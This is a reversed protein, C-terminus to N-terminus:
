YPSFDGGDFLNGVPVRLHTEQGIDTIRRSDEDSLDFNVAAFYEQMREVKKTTNLVIFQQDLQWRILITSKNVGYKASLEELTGELHKQGLWTIPALGMWSQIAIGQSQLWKAYEPAGQIYPHFQIQNVVPKIEATKLLNEVHTRRFNSIDIARAKGSRQIAEILKWSKAVAVEDYTNDKNAYPTHLCLLDVYDLQLRKLCSEFGAPIDEVSGESITQALKTTVFLEERPVGSEKIALGLEVETGYGEATDLHRYGAAIADKVMKVM